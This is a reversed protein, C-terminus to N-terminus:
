YYTNNQVKKRFSNVSELRGVINLEFKVANLSRGLVEAIKRIPKGKEHMKKATKCDRKSWSAGHNPIVQRIDGQKLM